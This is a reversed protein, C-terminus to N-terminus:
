LVCLVLDPPFPVQIEASQHQFSPRGSICYADDFGERNLGTFVESKECNLVDKIGLAAFFKARPGQRALETLMSQAVHFEASNSRNSPCIGSVTYFGPITTSLGDLM